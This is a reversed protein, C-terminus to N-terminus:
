APSGFGITLNSVECIKAFSESVVLRECFEIDRAILFKDDFDDLYVAKSIVREGEGLMRFSSKEKDILHAFKNTKFLYFPLMKDQCTVHCEYFSAEGLIRGEIAEKAM